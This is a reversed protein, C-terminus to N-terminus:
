SVQSQVTESNETACYTQENVVDSHDIQEFSDDDSSSEDPYENLQPLRRERSELDLFTKIKEATAYHEQSNGFTFSETLGLAIGTKLLLSVQHGTGFYRVNEEEVRVSVIDDITSIVIQSSCVMPFLKSWISQRLLRVEGTTKDFDCEEWDELCLLGVVMGGGVYLVKWLFPDSGYYAAGLAFSVLATLISWSWWTPERSFTLRDGTDVKVLVYGM